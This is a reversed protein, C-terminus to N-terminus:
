AFWVSRYIEKTVTLHFLRTDLATKRVNLVGAPKDFDAYEVAIQVFCNKADNLNILMGHLQCSQVMSELDFPFARFERPVYYLSDIQSRM